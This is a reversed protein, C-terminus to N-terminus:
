RSGPDQRGWARVFADAHEALFADLDLHRREEGGLEQQHLFAFIIPALLALAPGRPDCQRMEGAAIHTQLRKELAQMTPEASNDLFAPGLAPHRLGEILGTAFMTGLGGYRFGDAMHRVAGLISAAFPGSPQAMSALPEAGRALDDEMVARVVDERRGFYHSMTSLSVGAAAALERWSAQTAGRRGLRERLRALLERRREEYKANRTGHTRAM